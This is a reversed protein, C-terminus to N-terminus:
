PVAPRFANQFIAVDREDVDHDADFDARGCHEFGPTPAPHPMTPGLRCRRLMDFDILDVDGDCDLDPPISPSILVDMADALDDASVNKGLLLYFTDSATFGTATLQLQLAYIGDPGGGPNAGDGLLTYTLHNHDGAAGGYEFTPDGAVFGTSTYKTQFLENTVAMQPIPPATVFFEGVPQFEPCITLDADNYWLLPGTINYKFTTGTPITGGPVRQFGPFDTVWTNDGENVLPQTFHTSPAYNSAAGPPYPGAYTVIKGSNISVWIRPGPHADAAPIATLTLLLGLSIFRIM